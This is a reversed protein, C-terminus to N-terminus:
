STGRRKGPDAQAKKKPLAGPLRKTFTSLRESSVEVTRPKPDQDFEAVEVELSFKQGLLLDYKPDTESSVGMESFNWGPHELTFIVSQGPQILRDRVKPAVIRLERTMDENPCLLRAKQITSPRDGSNMALVSIQRRPSERAGPVELDGLAYFTVNTESGQDPWIHILGQVVMGTVSFLAILLSLTTASVKLWGRFIQPSDCHPCFKAGPPLRKRCNRCEKASEGPYQGCDHCAIVGQIGYAGCAPCPHTRNQLSGCKTCKKADGVPLVQRCIVCNPM